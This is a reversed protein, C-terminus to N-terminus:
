NLLYHKLIKSERVFSVVPIYNIRQLLCISYDQTDYKHTKNLSLGMQNTTACRHLEAPLEKNVTKWGFKFNELKIMDDLTLFKDTSQICSICNQKKLHKRTTMNGWISLGYMSHSYIQAYYIIKKAHPTLFNKSRYLLHSNRKLKILLQETHEKWNLKNDIWVGLFKTHDVFPISEGDISISINNKMRCKSNFLM